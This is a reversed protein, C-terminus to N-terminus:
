VHARGIEEQLYDTSALIVDANYFVGSKSLLSYIKQYFEKKKSDTELHHLALSSIIVNYKGTFDIKDFDGIIFESDVHKSLKHKAIDIMNSAIDVCIIKSNPYKTSISKSITGTGCGLDIVRIPENTDYPISSILAEVMQKYYPILNLIIDDYEKAESEFHEKINQM